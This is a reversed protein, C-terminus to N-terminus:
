AMEKGGQSESLYYASLGRPNTDDLWSGIWDHAEVARVSVAALQTVREEAEPQRVDM